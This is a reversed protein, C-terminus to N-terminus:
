GATKLISTADEFQSLKGKLEKRKRQSCVDEALWRQLDTEDVKYLMWAVFGDCIGDVLFLHVQKHITDFLRRSIASRTSNVTTKIFHGLVDGVTKVFDGTAIGTRVSTVM